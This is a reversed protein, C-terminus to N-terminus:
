NTNIKNSRIYNAAIMNRCTQFSENAIEYLAAISKKDGEDVNHDDMIAQFLDQTLETEYEYGPLSNIISMAQAEMQVKKVYELAVEVTLNRKIEERDSWLKTM